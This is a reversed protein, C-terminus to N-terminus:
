IVVFVSQKVVSRSGGRRGGRWRAPSLSQLTRPVVAVLGEITLCPQSLMDPGMGVCTRECTRVGRAGFREQAVVMQFAMELALVGIDSVVFTSPGAAVGAECCACSQATVDLSVFSLLFEPATAIWVTVLGKPFM